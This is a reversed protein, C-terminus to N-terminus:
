RLLDNIDFKKSLNDHAFKVFKETLASKLPNTTKNQTLKKENENEQTKNEKLIEKIDVVKKMINNYSMKKVIEVNIFVNKLQSNCLNKCYNFIKRCM